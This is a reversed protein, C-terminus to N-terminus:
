TRLDLGNSRSKKQIIKEIRKLRKKLKKAFSSYSYQLLMDQRAQKGKVIVEEPHSFTHRLLHQLHTLSPEAWQHGKWGRCVDDFVIHLLRADILGEIMLPYGNSETLYATVGSWNTAIIPVGCAM